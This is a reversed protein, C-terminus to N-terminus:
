DNHKTIQLGRKLEWDPTQNDSPQIEALVQLLVKLLGHSSRGVDESNTIFNM